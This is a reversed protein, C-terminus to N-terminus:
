NKRCREVDRWGIDTRYQLNNGEISILSMAKYAKERAEIVNKGEGVVHLLRGGHAYYKNNMMQIGAGYITVGPINKAEQIGFIQKGKVSAYNGPYGKAAGVVSVRAKGDVTIKIDKISGQAIAANLAFFDNTIGSILVEAEPDGWRANFEIVYVKKKGKKEVLMGGLYLVGTYPRNEKALGNITKDFIDNVQKMIERSLVLPPTSCGMGGTNEGEDFTFIRKHDQASGVLRFEKGDSIIFTSFEEGATGTDGELWEEILFTKGAEGFQKMMSIASLAEKNNKAPLAGKGEALGAAKIFWRSEKQKKIYVIGEEEAHCVTFNPQAINNREM